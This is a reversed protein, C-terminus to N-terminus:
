DGKKCQDLFILNEVDENFEEKCEESCFAKLENERTEWVTECFLCQQIM